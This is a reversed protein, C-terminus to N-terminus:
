KKVEPLQLKLPKGDILRMVKTQKITGDTGVIQVPLSMAEVKALRNKLSDIEAPDANKGDKGDRGDKGPPGAVPPLPATDSEGKPPLPAANAFDEVKKLRDELALIRKELELIHKTAASDHFVTDGRKGEKPPLIIPESPELKFPVGEPPIPPKPALVCRGDVCRYSRKTTPPLNSEVFKQVVSLRACQSTYPPSGHSMIGILQGQEDYVPGGSDGSDYTGEVVSSQWRDSKPVWSNQVVSQFELRKLKPGATQPFGVSTWRGSKPQDSAIPAVAVVKNAPFRFLSLDNDADSAVWEGQVTIGTVLGIGIPKQTGNDGRCHCCSLGYAWNDDVAIVVGSCGGDRGIRVTALIENSTATPKSFPSVVDSAITLSTVLCLLIAFLCKM